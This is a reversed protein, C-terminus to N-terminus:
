FSPALRLTVARTKARVVAQQLTLMSGELIRRELGLRAGAPEEPAVKAADEAESTFRPVILKKKKPRQLESAKKWFIFTRAIGERRAPGYDARIREERYIVVLSLM